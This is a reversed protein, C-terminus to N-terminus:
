YIVWLVCVNVIWVVRGKGLEGYIHDIIYIYIDREREGIASASEAVTGLGLTPHGLTRPLPFPLM